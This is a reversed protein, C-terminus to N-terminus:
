SRSPEVLVVLSRRPELKSADIGDRALEAGSAFQESFEGEFPSSLRYRAAPHLGAIRVSAEAVAGVLRFLVVLHRDEDDLTLQFAPLREGGSRLPQRTLRTIRGDEVFRRAVQKYFATHERLRDAVPPPLDPLRQSVAFNHLMAARFYTDSEGLPTSPDGPSYTQRLERSRSAHSGGWESYSFKLCVGPPLMAVAGWFIQLSHDLWDLDSLYTVHLHSLMALDIRLGGSSCNELLVEPHRARLDDLFGYYGRVHEYLGSGAGHGHDPRDCGLGPDVNFDLKVWTCGTAAVLDRIVGAAWERTQPCGFCIYGLPEGGRRAELQDRRGELAARPGLGEIECWIGFGVGRRRCHDSLVRLGNPFRAQNVLDWDGRWDKWNSELESPGFWGADLTCVELGLKAAADVNAAFSAESIETDTYPFWHNWETPVSGKQPRDPFWYRRGVESLASRGPIRDPGPEISIAVGPAEFEGGPQLDYWFERDSLGGTVLVGEGVLPEARCVWNGSWMPAVVFAFPEARGGFAVFPHRGHSSRGSTTEVVLPGRVAEAFPEFEQGWASSFGTVVPDAGLSLAYAITDVGSVRVAHDGSNQLTLHQELVPACCYRRVSLRATLSTGEVPAEILLQVRGASEREDEVTLSSTALVPLRWRDDATRVRFWPSSVGPDIWLREGQAVSVCLSPGREAVIFDLGDDGSFVYRPEGGM